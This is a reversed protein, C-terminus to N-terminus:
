RSLVPLYVLTPNGSLVKGNLIALAGGPNEVEINLIGVPLTGNWTAQITNENVVTVSNAAINRARVIPAGFFNEGTITLTTAQEPNQVRTPTVDSIIPTEWGGISIHDILLQNLSFGFVGEPGLTLTIMQGSFLSLDLSYPLWDENTWITSSITGGESGNVLIKLPLNPEKRITPKYYFLITPKHLDPPLYVSQQIFQANAEQVQHWNFKFLQRDSIFIADGVKSFDYFAFNSTYVKEWNDNGYPKVYYIKEFCCVISQAVAHINGLFDSKFGIVVNNFPLSENIWANTGAKKRVYSRANSEVSAYIDGEPSVAISSFDTTLQSKPINLNIASTIIEPISWTGDPHRIALKYIGDSSSNIRYMVYLNLHSDTTAGRLYVPMTDLDPVREKDSWAGEFPKSRHYIANNEIWMVHLTRSADLTAIPQEARHQLSGDSIITNSQECDLSSRPKFCFLLSENYFTPIIVYANGELDLLMQPIISFPLFSVPTEPWSGGVPKYSYKLSYSATSCSAWLLYTDGNDGVSVIGNESCPSDFYYSPLSQPEAIGTQFVLSNKGDFSNDSTINPKKFGGTHWEDGLASEFNGNILINSLPTLNFSFIQADYESMIKSTISYFGPASITVTQTGTTAIKAKLRLRGITSIPLSRFEVVPPDFAFDPLHVESGRNDRVFFNVDRFYFTANVDGNADASWNGWNGEHDRNRARFFIKKGMYPILDKNSITFSVPMWLDTGEAKMQLQTTQLSAGSGGLDSTEASLVVIGGEWGLKLFGPDVPLVRAIPPTFDTRKQVSPNRDTNSGTAIRTSQGGTWSVEEIFTNKIQLQYGNVQYEVRTFLLKTGDPSWDGMWMDVYEQAPDLVPRAEGTNVNVIILWNWDGNGLAADFAVWNGDPSWRVNGLYKWGTPNLLRPAGGSSSVVYIKGTNTNEVFRAFAIQDGAPSWTPSWSPLPSDCSLCTQNTGTSSMVYVQQAGTRNSVFAIQNGDPSWSPSFNDANPTNTLGSLEMGDSAAVYVQYRGSGSSAYATRYAGPRVDPSIGAAISTAFAETIGPSTYIDWRGNRSTQFSMREDPNLNAMQVGDRSESMTVQQPPPASDATQRSLWMARHSEEPNAGQSQAHSVLGFSILACFAVILALRFNHRTNMSQNKLYKTVAEM